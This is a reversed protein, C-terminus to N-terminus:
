MSIAPLDCDLNLQQQPSPPRPGVTDSGIDPRTLLWLVDVHHAAGLMPRDGRHDTATYWMFWSVMLDQTEQARAAGPEDVDHTRHHSTDGPSTLVHERIVTDVQSPLVTHHSLGPRAGSSAEHNFQLQLRRSKRPVIYQYFITHRACHTFLIMIQLM